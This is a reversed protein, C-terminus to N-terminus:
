LNLEFVNLTIQVDNPNVQSSSVTHKKNNHMEHGVLFTWFWFILWM